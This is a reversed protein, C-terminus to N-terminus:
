SLLKLKVQQCNKPTIVKVKEKYRANLANKLKNMENQEGHVLVINPPQLREIYDSTNAYDAHANFSIYEVDQKLQVIQNGITISQPRNM